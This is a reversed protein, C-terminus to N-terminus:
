VFCMNDNDNKVNIVCTKNAVSPPTPIFSSGQLPRYKTACVVFKTIRDINYGSGRSSFNEVQANFHAIAADLDFESSSNVLEPPTSFYGPVISVRGDELQRSFLVDARLQIRISRFRSRFDQITQQIVQENRVMFTDFTIDHPETPISVENVM